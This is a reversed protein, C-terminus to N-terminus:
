RFSLVNVFIFIALFLVYSEFIVLVVNYSLHTQDM